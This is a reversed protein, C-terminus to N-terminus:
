RNPLSAPQHFQQCLLLDALSTSDFVLQQRLVIDPPSARQLQLREAIVLEPHQQEILVNFLKTADAQILDVIFSGIDLLGDLKFEM